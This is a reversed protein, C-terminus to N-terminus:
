HAAELYEEKIPEDDWSARHTLTHTPICLVWWSKSVHVCWYNMDCRVWWWLGGMMVVWGDDCGVWWWVGGMMVSWGDDCGVWWWVGGVMMGWGDDCGVWWWVTGINCHMYTKQESCPPCCLSQCLQVIYIFVMQGKTIKAVM